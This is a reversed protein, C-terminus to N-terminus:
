HHEGQELEKPTAPSIRDEFFWRSVVARIRQSFKIKGDAGPRLMLPKYDVFDVLRWREYDSLPQHVEHYQGGPL